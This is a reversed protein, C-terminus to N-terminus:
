PKANLARIVQQVREEVAAEIWKRRNAAYWQDLAAQEEVTAVLRHNKQACLSRGERDVSITGFPERWPCAVRYVRFCVENRHAWFVFRWGFINM